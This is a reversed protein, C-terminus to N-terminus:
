YSATKERGLYGKMMSTDDGLVETRGSSKGM